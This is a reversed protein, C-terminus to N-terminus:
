VMAGQSHVAMFQSQLEYVRLKRLADHILAQTCSKFSNLLEVSNYQDPSTKSLHPLGAEPSKPLQTITSTTRETEKEKTPDNVARPNGTSSIEKM